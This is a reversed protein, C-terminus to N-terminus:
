MGWLGLHPRFLMYILIHYIFMLWLMPILMSLCPFSNFHLTIRSIMVDVRLYGIYKVGWGGIQGFVKVDMYHGVVYWLLLILCPCQCPCYCPHIFIKYCSSLNLHLIRRVTFSGRTSLLLCPPIYFNHWPQCLVAKVKIVPSIIGTKKFFYFFFSLPM